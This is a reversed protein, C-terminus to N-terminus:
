RGELLTLIKNKMGTYQSRLQRKKRLDIELPPKRNLYTYYTSLYLIEEVVEISMINRVHEYWRHSLSVKACLRNTASYERCMRPRAEYISCIGTSDSKKHLFVCDRIGDPGQLRNIMGDMENWTYKGPNIYRERMEQETLKLHQAISSIDLASIELIYTRCCEGCM